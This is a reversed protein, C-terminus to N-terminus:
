RSSNSTGVAAEPDTTDDGAAFPSGRGKMWENAILLLGPAVELVTLWLRSAVAAISARAADLLGFNTLFLQLGAERVVLGAPAFVAVYGALYSGIYSAVYDIVPGTGTEFLGLCFIWFAIGYLIWASTAAGATRLFAFLSLRPPNFDRGTVRSILRASPGLVLPILAITALPVLLVAVGILASSPSDDGSLTAALIHQGGLAIILAGGVLTNIITLLMAAGVAALPSVGLKKAMVAISAVSWIRLPLYRGLVSVFWILASPGFAVSSGWERMLARWAQILILYASFVILGGLIILGWRPSLNAIDARVEGWDNSLTGWALWVIAGVFVLQVLFFLSRRFRM